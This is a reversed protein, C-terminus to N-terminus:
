SQVQSLTREFEHMAEDEAESVVKFVDKKVKLQFHLPLKKTSLCMAEFFSDMSDRRQSRLMKELRRRRKEERIKKFFEVIENKQNLRPNSCVHNAAPSPPPSYSSGSRVEEKIEDEPAKNAMFDLLFTMEEEYKWPRKCVGDQGSTSSNRWKLANRHCDRLKKWECKVLTSSMGLDMGISNWICEKLKIHRYDKDSTDYLCPHRKVLEILKITDRKMM